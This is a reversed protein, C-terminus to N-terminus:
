KKRRVGRVMQWLGRLREGLGRAHTWRLLGRLIDGTAPDPSIAEDFHPRFTGKRVTVVQPVTMALLGEEGQTVCWGSSGRGGFPTAPHATPALADNVCVAGAPIRAALEAAATTDASFVSAALAFPSPAVLAEVEDTSDFPIVGAVPAFCAETCVLTEPHVGTLITPPMAGPGLDKSEPTLARAGRAVADAVLKEAQRRQGETVLSVAQSRAVFARLKEVFEAYRPRQVFVRRVAICTQGRNLTVGFWAARAALDLDADALVFMADCGSLELTSPVLREGLRAALKRGVADSGTFVVYDVAAEALQPGAERTAPLQQLLDRPFGADRFLATTLDATRPVNESPKWLVANGAVVAQAIQVVNLFVPYNWTGIIGVAGWPRRHVTDRCGLLWTPRSGVSRPALIRAARGELFKLAAATPLLESGVVEVPTRGVDARVAETVADAREVLLARLSRVPRLRERVPRKNWDAQAARTAALESTFPMM